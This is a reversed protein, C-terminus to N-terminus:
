NAWGERSAKAAGDGVLRAGCPEVAIASRSIRRVASEGGLRGSSLVSHSRSRKRAPSDGNKDSVNGRRRGTAKGGM